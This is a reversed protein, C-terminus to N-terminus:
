NNNENYIEKFQKYTIIDSKSNTIYKEDAVMYINRDFYFRILLKDEMFWTVKEVENEKLTKEAEAKQEESECLLQFDKIQKISM